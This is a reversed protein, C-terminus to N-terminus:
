MECLTQRKASSKGMEFVVSQTKSGVVFQQFQKSSANQLSFLFIMLSNTHILLQIHINFYNRALVVAKGKM